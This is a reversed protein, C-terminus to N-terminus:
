NGATNLHFTKSASGAHNTATCTYDGADEEQFSTIELERASVLIWIYVISSDSINSSKM